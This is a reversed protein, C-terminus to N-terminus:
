TGTGERVTVSAPHGAEPRLAAEVRQREEADLRRLAAVDGALLRAGGNRRLAALCGAPTSFQVNVNDDMRVVYVDTM